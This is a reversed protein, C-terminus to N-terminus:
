FNSFLSITKGNALSEECSFSLTNSAIANAESPFEHEVLPAQEVVVIMSKGDPWEIEVAFNVRTGNEYRLQWKRSDSILARTVLSGTAAFARGEYGVRKCGAGRDEQLNNAIELSMSKIECNSDVGDVWFRKVNNVASVADSQDRAKDTQGSVLVNGDLPIESVLAGTSTCVGSEPVEFSLTNFQSDVYTRYSIDGVASLDVLREQIGYYYRSTGSQAKKSAVTISAGATETSSPAPSTTVASGAVASVYYARNDDTDTLGTVIAYDGVTFANSPVTFGTATAAIDTATISNDVQECHLAAILYDKTQQTIESSIETSYSETDQIQSKGQQNTKIEGSETYSIARKPTGSLRRVYDFEPTADLVGKTTQPTVYVSIDNANLARDNVITAAM